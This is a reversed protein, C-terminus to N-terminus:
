EKSIEIEYASEDDALVPASANLVPYLVGDILAMLEAEDGEEGMVLTITSGRFGPDSTDFWICPANEPETDGIVVFQSLQETILELIKEESFLETLIQLKKTKTSM